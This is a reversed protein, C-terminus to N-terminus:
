RPLRSIGANRLPRTIGHNKGLWLKLTLTNLPGAWWDVQGGFGRALRYLGLKSIDFTAIRGAIRGRRLDGICRFSGDSSRNRRRM